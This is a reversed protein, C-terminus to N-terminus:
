SFRWIVSCNTKDRKDFVLTSDIFKIIFENDEIKIRDGTTFEKLM